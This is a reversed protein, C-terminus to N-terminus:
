TGTTQPKAAQTTKGETTAETTAESSVTKTTASETTATSSSGALYCLKLSTVYNLLNGTTVAQTTPPNNCVFASPINECVQNATCTHSGM